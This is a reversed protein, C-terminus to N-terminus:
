SHCENLEKLCYLTFQTRPLAGYYKLANIGVILRDDTWLLGTGADLVFKICNDIDPIHAFYDNERIVQKTKKQPFPFYFTMDILLPCDFIDHEKQNRIEIGWILKLNKQSDYFRSGSARARMLPIPKGDVSYSYSSYKDTDFQSQM